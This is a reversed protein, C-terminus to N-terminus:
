SFIENKLCFVQKVPLLQNDNTQTESTEGSSHKAKLHDAFEAVNDTHFSCPFCAFM